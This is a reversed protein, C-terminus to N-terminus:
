TAGPEPQQHTQTPPAEPEKPPLQNPQKAGGSKAPTRDQEQNTNPEPENIRSRTRRTTPEAEPPEQEQKKKM